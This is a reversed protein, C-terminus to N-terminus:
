QWNLKRNDIILHSMFYCVVVYFHYKEVRVLGIFIWRPSSWWGRFEVGRVDSACPVLVLVGQDLTRILVVGKVGASIGM